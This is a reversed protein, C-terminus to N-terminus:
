YGVLPDVIDSPAEGRLYHELDRVIKQFLAPQVAGANASIHPTLRVRPHTWLPHGAPLPEPDTVDLSAYGLRGADLAALLAQHDLVAGRGVNILHASPKAHALMDADILGRTAGTSPLALVIHDASAIVAAVDELIEVGPAPSPLDRRRAATVICGLALAKRALAGGIAGLGVIGVTQGAIQGLAAPKWDELRRARFRDLDKAQLYIAAIVYDAIEDSAVGRACTVVPADLMWDPYFDVGTSACCIWRLRGPWGPPRPPAPLWSAVPAVLFVEADLAETWPQMGSASVVAPRSAHARLRANFAEDMQSAIVLSM